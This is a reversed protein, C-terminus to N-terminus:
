VLHGGVDAPMSGQHGRAWRGRGDAEELFAGGELRGGAGGELRGGAGGEFCGGAGGRLMGWRPAQERHQLLIAAM